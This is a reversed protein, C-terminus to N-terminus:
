ATFNLHVFFDRFLLKRPHKMTLSLSVLTQPVDQLKLAWASAIPKTTKHPVLEIRDKLLPEGKDNLLKIDVLESLDRVKSSLGIVVKNGEELTLSVVQVPAILSILWEHYNWPSQDKPDTFFAHKLLALDDKIKEFPILYPGDNPLLTYLEPMLKSRYHWASYNSFNKKILKEAMECEKTLFEIESLKAHEESEM